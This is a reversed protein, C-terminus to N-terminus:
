AESFEYPFAGRLPKRILKPLPANSTKPSQYGLASHLRQRNYYLDIFVELNQQLAELTSFSACYIEEQKLTKLFVRALRTQGLSEGHPEHQRGGAMTRAGGPIRPQAYQVGRDSHHVLGPEPRRAEVAKLLARKALGADLNRGLAWGVVRRSWADLVVALYVFEHRLRIYTLDAVWLQNPGNLEMYRALNPFVSLAHQSNTTTIWKRKRVALLNDDRMLKRIKKHNVLWGQQRLAASVRRYGYQRHGLCIRQIADRLETAADDPQSQSWDRYYSARSVGALQCLRGIRQDGQPPTM